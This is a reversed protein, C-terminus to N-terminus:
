GAYSNETEYTNRDFFNSDTCTSGIDLFRNVHGAFGFLNPSILPVDHWQYFM